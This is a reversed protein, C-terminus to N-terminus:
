AEDEGEQEQTVWVDLAIDPGGRSVFKDHSPRGAIHAHHGALTSLGRGEVVRVTGGLAAHAHCRAGLLLRTVCPNVSEVENRMSMKQINM